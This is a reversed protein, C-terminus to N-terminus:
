LNFRVTKRGNSCEENRENKSLYAPKLRDISITSMKGFYEIVFAKRLRRVVKFPGEYPPNLGTRVKDVRVFVFECTELPKPVFITQSNVLRPESPRLTRFHDRLQEVFSEAAIDIEPTDVFLEGPVHLTQGYLMEAASCGLEEKVATRIGLLIIPLEETWRQKCRAMIAAKFTRHFREVMGNAQPHYSTTRIRQSGLFKMLDNFMRSEFQTGRDTSIRAPVGFRPIYERFLTKAVTAASIDKIPYAEPWRSFRDVLTLVYSYGESPPMPGVIDLHLHEFRSNPPIIREFPTKTHRQVKSKQCAVCEKAWSNADKNMNPWFYRAAILKRTARIGPHALGHLTNFVPRRLPLPVWPRSIGSGVDCWLKLKSAPIDKLVLKVTTNTTTDPNSTTTKLEEDDQQFKILNELSLDSVDIGSSEDGERRSLTDAVVNESGKVYQLESTFQSIFDLHRAQRPSRETKSNMATVLPKHDTYVVFSRGEIFYRFHRVALYIALLERDFASYKKEALSMKKSFFALPVWAGDTARQQLVAGVAIESADTTLSIEASDDPHVLLTADALAKRAELFGQNCSDPWSFEIKAKSKKKSTLTALHDYIPALFAALHPVFRHYYIVMGVFRQAQKVSTPTPFANIAEVRDRSPRVGEASIENSLFDLSKVGFVCKQPNITLGFDSLRKFVRELHTQHEVANRSAILLDDIYVFVFDLGLCVQNMFRQFTQAANRLGFPMRSFEFLGFPTTIATKHIDEDAIPIHHFARVLDVKSFITCGSLGMSFSQVHPIPYRDPITIANLRRYDGCPRWDNEGKKPVMHLPSSAQSSSPRCIGLNTMHEFELKAARHRKPDLRRPRSFPLRDTTAIYHVVNHMVPVDYRPNQTITPFKRLISCFDNDDPHNIKIGHVNTRMIIANVSMETTIDQIQKKSLDVVLGFEALFDAGIIPRSVSAITFVFNFKRRLGM